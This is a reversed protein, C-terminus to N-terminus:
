RSCVTIPFSCKCTPTREHSALNAVGLPKQHQGHKEQRQFVFIVRRGQGSVPDEDHLLFTHANHKILALRCRHNPSCLEIKTHQAFIFTSSLTAYLSNSRVPSLTARVKSLTSTPPLYQWYQRVKRSAHMHVVRM